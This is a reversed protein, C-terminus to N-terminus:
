GDLPGRSRSTALRLARSRASSPPHRRCPRGAAGDCVTRFMSRTADAHTGFSSGPLSPLSRDSLGASDRSSLWPMRARQPTARAPPTAACSGLRVRTSLSAEIERGHETFDGRAPFRTPARRLPPGVRPLVPSPKPRKRPAWPTSQPTWLRELVLRCLRVNAPPRRPSPISGEL